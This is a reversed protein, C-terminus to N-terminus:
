ELISELIKQTKQSKLLIIFFIKQFKKRLDNQSENFDVKKKKDDEEWNLIINRSIIAVKQQFTL